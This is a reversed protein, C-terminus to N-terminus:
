LRDEAIAERSCGEFLYLCFDSGLVGLSSRDFGYRAWMHSLVAGARFPPSVPRLFKGRWAVVASIADFASFPGSFGNLVM